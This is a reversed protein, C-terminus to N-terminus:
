DPRIVEFVSNWFFGNQFSLAISTVDIDLTRINAYVSNFIMPSVVAAVLFGIWNFSKGKVLMSYTERALMGVIMIMYFLITKVWKRELLVKYGEPKAEEPIKRPLWKRFVKYEELKAEEPKKELLLKKEEELKRKRQYYAAIVVSVISIITTVLYVIEPVKIELM